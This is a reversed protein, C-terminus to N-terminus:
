IKLTLVQLFPVKGRNQSFSKSVIERIYNYRTREKKFESIRKNIKQLLDKKIREREKNEGDEFLGIFQVEIAVVDNVDPIKKLIVNALGDHMVKRRDSLIKGDVPIIKTGDVSLKDVKIQFKVEKSVLDLCEGNQILPAYEIGSTLALDRHAYLHIFDGHVPVVAEPRIADFMDRLDGMTPHGSSHIPLNQNTILKIGNKILQNQLEIIEKENGPISKASFIVYDGEELEVYSHSKTAIKYLASRDEGQSGTCILLVKERPISKFVAEEDFYQYKSLLGCERAIKETRKLSRGSIMLTRGTKEAAIAFTELRTVNSSFCTVVIREKKINSITEILNARVVDEAVNSGDPINSGTSDCVVALPQSKQDFFKPLSSPFFEYGTTPDKGFKWDGTHFVEGYKTKIVFAYAEPISHVVKVVKIEFNNGVRFTENKFTNFRVKSHGFEKMKEKLMEISFKSGYVPVNLSPWIYPISGYHDEHAHTLLIAKIKQKIEILLKPDPILVDETLDKDFTVGMDVVIFEGDCYYLNLSAGFEGTGGIPLFYFGNKFNELM